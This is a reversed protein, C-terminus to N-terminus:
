FLRRPAFIPSSSGSARCNQRDTGRIRLFVQEGGRLTAGEWSLPQRRLTIASSRGLCSHQWGCRFGPSFCLLGNCVMNHLLINDMAIFGPSFCLLGNCVMNHLLINDMAIFGQSFCLLGNCVMNHLLINDM